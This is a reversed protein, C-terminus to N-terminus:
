KLLYALQGNFIVASQAAALAATQLLVAAFKYEASPLRKAAPYYFEIFFIIQM